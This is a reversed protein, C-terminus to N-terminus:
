AVEEERSLVRIYLWTVLALIAFMIVAIASAKGMMMNGFAEMWAYIGMIYTSQAPGGETMVYVQDFIKFDWVTELIFLILLLNKLLPLTIGTLKQWWSAGDVEAAEYIESSISQFGALLSFAVFPFSQWVVVILISTFARMQTTLWSFEKFQDFGLLVLFYNLIGYQDNFIWKWVISAAVRPIVWPLLVAVGLVARGPFKVNLLMAVAFGALMTVIVCAATFLATNGLVQWFFPDKFIALYNGFWIWTKEQSLIDLLSYKYFSLWVTNLLPYLMLGTVVVLAPALLGYPFWDIRRFGVKPYPM